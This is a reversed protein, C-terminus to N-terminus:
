SHKHVDTLAIEIFILTKNAWKWARFKNVKSIQCPCKFDEKIEREFDLRSALCMCLLNGHKWTSDWFGLVSLSSAVIRHYQLLVSPDQAEKQLLLRTYM